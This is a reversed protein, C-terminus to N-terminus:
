IRWSTLESMPDTLENSLATTNMINMKMRKPM